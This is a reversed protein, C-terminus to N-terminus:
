RNQPEGPQRVEHALHRSAGRVPGVARRGHPGTRIGSLRAAVLSNGIATIRPGFPTRALLITGAVAVLGLVVVALTVEDARGTMLQRLLPSTFGSPCGGSYLLVVGHLIGNATLTVM